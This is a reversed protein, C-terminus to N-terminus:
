RGVKSRQVVPLMEQHRTWALSQPWTIQEHKWPDMRCSMKGWDTRVGM